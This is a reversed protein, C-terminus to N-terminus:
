LEEQQANSLRDIAIQLFRAEDDPLDPNAEQIALLLILAAEEEGLDELVFAPMQAMFFPANPDDREAADTAIELALDLDGMRHKALYMAQMRWRWGTEEDIEARALLYDIVHRVDATNQTFGFWYGAIVPVLNSRSDFADLLHFWAELAEYDLDKLPVARGGSVGLNILHLAGNRFFFERDGLSIALAAEYSPPSIVTSAQERKDLLLSGVYIQGAFLALLV